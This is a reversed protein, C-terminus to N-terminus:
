RVGHHGHGRHGAGGPRHRPHRIIDAGDGDPLGLDQLLIQPKLEMLAALGSEFDERTGVLELDDQARIAEALRDRARPEDEVILVRPKDM